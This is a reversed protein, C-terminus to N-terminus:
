LKKLTTLSDFAGDEIHEIINYSLNRSSDPLYFILGFVILLFVSSPRYQPLHIKLKQMTSVVKTFKRFTSIFQQASSSDLKEAILKSFFVRTM